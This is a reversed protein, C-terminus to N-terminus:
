FYYGFRLNGLARRDDSGSFQYIFTAGLDLDRRGVYFIGGECAGQTTGEGLLAEMANTDVDRGFEHTVSGGVLITIPVFGLAMTGALAGNLTEINDHTTIDFWQWAYSGSAQLGFMRSLALMAIASPRLTIIDGTTILSGPQLMPQILKDASLGFDGRVTVQLMSTRVLRVAAGGEFGLNEHAGVLIASALNRPLEASGTLRGTLGLWPTLRPPERSPTHWGSSACRASRPAM